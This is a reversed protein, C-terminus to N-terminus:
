LEMFATLPLIESSLETSGLTFTPHKELIIEKKYKTQKFALAVNAKAHTIAQFHSNRQSAQHPLYTAVIIIQHKRAFNALHITIQNYIKKAEEEQVDKDLFTAAIDSIIVLKANSTKVADVLKQLILTTMQYATFARSIYIHDLVQKPNLQYLRSLQTIQYFRFNNGGDIFVVNGGLGGLQPPLQARVCLLAELSSVASSGYLLAFEGAKFGPFLENINRIKLTLLTIPPATKIIQTLSM